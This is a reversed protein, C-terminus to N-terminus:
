EKIINDSYEGALSKYSEIIENIAAYFEEDVRFVVPQEYESYSAIYINKETKYITISYEAFLLDNSCAYLDTVTYATFLDIDIEADPTATNIITNLAEESEESVIKYVQKHSPVEDSEDYYTYYFYYGDFYNGDNIRKAIKDYIDERAFYSTKGDSSSYTLSYIYLNDNTIYARGGFQQSLLVPVDEETIYLTNIYTIDPSFAECIPLQIYQYGNYVLNGADNFHIQADRMEDIFNCGILSLCLLVSITLCLIKKILKM